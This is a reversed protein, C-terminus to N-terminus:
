FSTARLHKVRKSAMVMDSVITVDLVNRHLDAHFCSTQFIVLKAVWLFQERFINVKIPPPIFTQIKFNHNLIVTKWKNFDLYKLFM